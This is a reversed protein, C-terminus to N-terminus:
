MMMCVNIIVAIACVTWTVLLTRKREVSKQRHFERRDAFHDAFLKEIRETNLEIKGKM